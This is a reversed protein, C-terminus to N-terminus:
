KNTLSHWSSDPDFEKITEAVTATDTGLDKEYVLGDVGAIFTMVGSKGYKAPYALVAFGGTMKGDEIYSKAGGPANAGQAKLLRYLYGYYEQPHHRGAARYGEKSAIAILPGIPSIEAGDASKWYLGDKKGPTSILKEAYQHTAGDHAQNYYAIQARAINRCVEIADFENRGIQRYHLEKAGYASDFYWGADSKALPIPMPWNEAGVILYYKGDPGNAFRHMQQYRELFAAIDNKDAIKDGSSLDSVDIGFLGSLKGYDRDELVTVLATAADEPTQFTKETKSQAWSYNGSILMAAILALAFAFQRASSPLNIEISQKM